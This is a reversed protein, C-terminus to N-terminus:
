PLFAVKMEEGRAVRGLASAYEELPSEGTVLRAAPVEGSVLLALVARAEDPTYHFSGVLTVEDYDSSLGTTEIDFFLAQDAISSLTSFM